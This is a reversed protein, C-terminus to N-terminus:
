ESWSEDGKFKRIAELVVLFLPLAVALFRLVTRAALPLRRLGPAEPVWGALPAAALTFTTHNPLTGFLRGLALVCFLCVVGIGSFRLNNPSAIILSVMAGGALAGSLIIGIQGGSIYSWIMVTVGAAAATLFLLGSVTSPSTRSQLRALL